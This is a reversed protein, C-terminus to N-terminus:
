WNKDLKKLFRNVGGEVRSAKGAVGDKRGSSGSGYGSAAEERTPRYVSAHISAADPVGTSPTGAYTYGSYGGPPLNPQHPAAAPAAYSSGAPGGTGVAFGSTRSVIPPGASSTTRQAAFSSVPLAADASAAGALGTGDHADVPPPTKERHAIPEPAPPSAPNYPKPQQQQQQLAPPPPGPPPPLTQLAASSTSSYSPMSAHAYVPSIAARELQQVIPSIPDARPADSILGGTSVTHLAALLSAAAAETWLYLDITHLPHAALTWAQPSPRTVTLNFCCPKLQSHSITM